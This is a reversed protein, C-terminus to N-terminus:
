IIQFHKSAEPEFSERARRNTFVTLKVKKRPYIQLYNFSNYAKEDFLDTWETATGAMILLPSKNNILASYHTHFHGCFIIDFYNELDAFVKHSNKIAHTNYKGRKYPGQPIGWHHQPNIDKPSHHILLIKICDEFPVEKEEESFVVGNSKYDDMTEQVWNIQEQSIEGEAFTKDKYLNSDLAFILFPQGNIIKHNEYDFKQHEAFKNNQTNVCFDSKQYGDLTNSLHKDHNGPIAILKDPKINLGFKKPSPHNPKDDLSKSTFYPYAFNNIIQESYADSVIDGTLFFADAKNLYIKEGDISKCANLEHQFYKVLEEDHKQVNINPSTWNFIGQKIQWGPDLEHRGGDYIMEGLHFDSFHVFSAIPKNESMM